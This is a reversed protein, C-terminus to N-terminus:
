GTVEHAQMEKALWLMHIAELNYKVCAQQSDESKIYLFRIKMQM